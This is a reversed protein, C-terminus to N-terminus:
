FKTHVIAIVITFLLVAGWYIVNGPMFQRPGKFGGIKAYSSEFGHYKTGEYIESEIQSIHHGIQRMVTYHQFCRFCSFMTLIPLIWWFSIPISISGNRAGIGYLAGYSLALGGITYTELKMYALQHHRIGGTLYRYEEVLFDM